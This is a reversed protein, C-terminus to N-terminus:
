AACSTALASQRVCVGLDILICFIATSARAFSVPCALDAVSRADSIRRQVRARGPGVRRIRRCACLRHAHLSSRIGFLPSRRAAERSRRLHLWRRLATAITATVACGTRAALAPNSPGVAYLQTWGEAQPMRVIREPM